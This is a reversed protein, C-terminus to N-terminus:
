FKGNQSEIVREEEFWQIVPKGEVLTEIACTTKGYLWECRAVAMGTFGTVCDRAQHGLVIQEGM